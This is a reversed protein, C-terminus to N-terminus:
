SPLSPVDKGQDHLSPRPRAPHGDTPPHRLAHPTALWTALLWLSAGRPTGHLAQAAEALRRAEALDGRALASRAEERLRWARVALRMLPELDAGCRSCQRSGRFRAQCVPCRSAARM